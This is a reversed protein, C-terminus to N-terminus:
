FKKKLYPLNNKSTGWRWRFRVNLIANIEEKTLFGVLKHDHRKMPISLVRQIEPLLEPEHFEVYRFFSRIAALRINRTTISNKRGSELYSLFKVIFDANIDSLCLKSPSNINNKEAFKLLLCFSDRYSQVTRDSVRKQNMLYQYFYNQLLTSFEKRTNM